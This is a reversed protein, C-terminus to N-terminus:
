SATAAPTRRRRGLGRFGMAARGGAKRTLHECIEICAGCHLCHNTGPFGAFALGGPSPIPAALDRPALEVPCIGDCGDCEICTAAPDYDIGVLPEAQVVSYYLGIPCLKRCFGWRFRRGHFVAYAAVTGISAWVAAAGPRAVLAPAAIWWLSVALALVLAFGVLEVWGRRRRRPDKPFADIADAFRSLQGVPCGFGCFMRGAPVNIAFTVVYFAGIALGIGVLGRGLAVPKGLVVHTGSWLDMRAVGLLPVALLVALTVTMTVARYWRYRHARGLVIRLYRFRDRRTM